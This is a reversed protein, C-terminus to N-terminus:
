IQKVTNSSPRVQKIKNPWMTQPDQRSFKTEAFHERWWPASCRSTHASSHTCFPCGILLLCAAVFFLSFFEASVGLTPTRLDFWRPKPCGQELVTKEKGKLLLCGKVRDKQRLQLNKGALLCSGM